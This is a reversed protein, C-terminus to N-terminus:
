HKRTETRPITQGAITIKKTQSLYLENAKKVNELIKKTTQM